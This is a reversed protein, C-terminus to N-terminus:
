KQTPWEGTNTIMDRSYFLYRSGGEQKAHYMATDAHQILTDIDEEATVAMAIGISANLEVERGPSLIVKRETFAELLKEAVAEADSERSVGEVAVVFEDGGMRGVHDIQRVTRRIIEAATRIAHDGVDHGYTDNIQKFGDLDIFLLAVMKGTAEARNLSTQLRKKFGRHNWLTTLSDESAMQKLRAELKKRVTVNQYVSAVLKEGLPILHIQFFDEPKMDDSFHTEDVVIVRQQYASNRLAVAFEFDDHAEPFADRLAVGIMNKLDVGTEISAQQNSYILKSSLPGNIIEWITVGYPFHEMLNMIGLAVKEGMANLVCEECRRGIQDEVISIEPAPKEEIVKLQRKGNEPVELM